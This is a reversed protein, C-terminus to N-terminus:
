LDFYWWTLSSGIQAKYMFSGELEQSAGWRSVSSRSCQYVTGRYNTQWSGGGYGSNSYYAVVSMTVSGYGNDTVKVRIPLKYTSGNEDVAYATTRVVTSSSRDQYGYNSSNGYTPIYGIGQAFLGTSLMMLVAIIITRKM